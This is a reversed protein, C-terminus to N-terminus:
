EKVLVFLREHGDKRALIEGGQDTQDLLLEHLALARRIVETITEAGTRERLRELRERVAQSIELNLRVKPETRAPRSM